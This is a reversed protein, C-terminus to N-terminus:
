KIGLLEKIKKIYDMEKVADSFSVTTEHPMKDRQTFNGNFLFQLLRIDLWSINATKITDSEGEINILLYLTPNEIFYPSCHKCFESEDLAIHIGKIKQIEARFVRIDYIYHLYEPVRSNFRNFKHEFYGKDNWIFEEKGFTTLWERVIEDYRTKGGCKPCIHLVYSWDWCRYRWYSWDESPNIPLKKLKEVIQEKSFFPYVTDNGNGSQATLKPTLLAISIILLYKMSM